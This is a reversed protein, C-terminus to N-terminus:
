KLIKITQIIEGTIISKKVLFVQGPFGNRGEVAKFYLLASRTEWSWSFLDENNSNTRVSKVRFVGWPPLNVYNDNLLIEGAQSTVKFTQANLNLWLCVLVFSFLNKM